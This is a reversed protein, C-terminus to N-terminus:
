IFATRSAEYKVSERSKYTCVADRGLTSMRACTRVEGVCICMSYINEKLVTSMCVCLMSRICKVDMGIGRLHFLPVASMVDSVCLWVCHVFKLVCICAEFETLTKSLRTVKKRAALSCAKFTYLTHTHTHTYCQALPLDSCSSVRLAVCTELTYLSFFFPSFALANLPPFSNKSLRAYM